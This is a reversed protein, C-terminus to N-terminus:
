SCPHNVGQKSAIVTFKCHTCFIDSETLEWSHPQASSLVKVQPRVMADFEPKNSEVGAGFSSVVSDEVREVQGMAAHHLLAAENMAKADALIVPHQFRPLSRQQNATIHDTDTVPTSGERPILGSSSRFEQSCRPQSKRTIQKLSSSPLLDSEPITQLSASELSGKAKQLSKLDRLPVSPPGSLFALDGNVFIDLIDPDLQPDEDPLDLGDPVARMSFTGKPSMASLLSQTLPQSQAITLATNTLNSSTEPTRGLLPSQTDAASPQTESQSPESRILQGRQATRGSTRTRDTSGSPSRQDQPSYWKCLPRPNAHGAHYSFCVM